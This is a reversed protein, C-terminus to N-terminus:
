TSFLNSLFFESSLSDDGTPEDFGVFMGIGVSCSAFRSSLSSFKMFCYSALVDSEDISLVILIYTLFMLSCFM